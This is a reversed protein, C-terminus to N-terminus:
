QLKRTLIDELEDGLKQLIQQTPFTWRSINEWQLIRQDKIEKLEMNKRKIFLKKTIDSTFFEEPNTIIDSKQLRINIQELDKKLNTYEKSEEKYQMINIIQRKKERNLPELRLFRFDEWILNKQMNEKGLFAWTKNSTKTNTYTQKKLILKWLPYPIDIKDQPLWLQKKLDPVSAIDEFSLKSFYADNYFEAREQPSLTKLYEILKKIGRYYIVDKRNSGLSERDYYSKTRKSRIMALKSAEVDDKWTLKYYIKLLIFTDQFNYNEGIFTSIHWIEPTIIIEEISDYHLLYENLKTIWEEINEYNDGAFWLRDKSKSGRVLHWGIEHESITALTTESLSEKNGPLKLEQKEFGVWLNNQGIKINTERDKVEFFQQIIYNSINKVSNLPIDWKMEIKKNKNPVSSIDNDEFKQLFLSFSKKEDDSLKDKKKDFLGSLVSIIAQKEEPIDSIKPGYLESQMNEITSIDKNHKVFFDQTFWINQLKEKNLNLMIGEPRITISYCFKKAEFPLSLKIIEIRKYSQEIKKLFLSRISPLINNDNEINKRIAEINKEVTQLNDIRASIDKQTLMNMQRLEQESKEGGDEKISFFSNSITDLINWMNDIKEKYKLVGWQIDSISKVTREFDKAHQLHPQIETM